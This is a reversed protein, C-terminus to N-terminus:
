RGFGGICSSLDFSSFDWSTLSTAPVVEDLIHFDNEPCHSKGLNVSQDDIEDKITKRVWTECIELVEEIHINESKAVFYKSKDLKSTENEGNTTYDYIFCEEFTNFYSCNQNDVYNCVNDGVKCRVGQSHSPVLVHVDWIKDPNKDVISKSTGQLCSKM